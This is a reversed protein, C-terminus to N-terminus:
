AFARQVSAKTYPAICGTFISNLTLTIIGAPTCAASGTCKHRRHALLLLVSLFRPEKGRTEKTGSKAFGFSKGVCCSLVFRM